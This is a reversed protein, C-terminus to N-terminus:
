NSNLWNVFQTLSEDNLKLNHQKNFKAALDKYEGELKRVSTPLTYYTGNHLILYLDKQKEYYSNKSKQYSNLGELADIKKIHQKKYLSYKEPNSVLEVLYGLNPGKGELTYNLTNYIEGNELIFKQGLIKNAVLIEGNQKFEIDDTYANYRVLHNKSNNALHGAVYDKQIYPTGDVVTTTTPKRTMLLDQGQVVNYDEKEQAFLACPILLFLLKKM